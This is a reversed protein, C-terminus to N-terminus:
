KRLDMRVFYRDPPNTDGVPIPIHNFGDESNVRRLGEQGVRCFGLREYFQIAHLNSDLTRLYFGCPEFTVQAWELIAHTAQAMIGPQIKQVGRVVNDFEMYGEKNLTNAFGMHGIPHGYRDVVLFLIRDPVDLLLKRAWRKTSDFTVTFKNHFTVAEERWKAFLKIAEDDHYHLECVCLLYGNDDKLRISRSILDDYRIISKIAAFETRIRKQYVDNKATM